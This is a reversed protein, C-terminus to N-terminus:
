FSLKLSLLLAGHASVACCLPTLVQPVMSHRLLTTLVKKVCRKVGVKLFVHFRTCVPNLHKCSKELGWLFLMMPLAQEVFHDSSKPYWQLGLHPLSGGEECM